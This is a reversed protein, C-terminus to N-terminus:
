KHEMNENANCKADRSVVLSEFNLFFDQNM